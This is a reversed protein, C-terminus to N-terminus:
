KFLPLLVECAREYDEPECYLYQVDATQHYQELLLSEKQIPVLHPRGLVQKKLLLTSRSEDKESLLSMYRSSQLFLFDIQHEQLCAKTAEKIEDTHQHDFQLLRKAPKRFVIRSAWKQTRAQFLASHIRPDQAELFNDLDGTISFDLEGELLSQQLYHDFPLLTKHFYVQLFMHMRALLFNEFTYLANHNLVLVIGAETQVCSLSRILHDRDFIGYNVGTYHSDRHLYDMRDADIEGSIIHRLMPHINKSNNQRLGCRTIFSDSPKIKKEILACVDQAEDKSIVPPSEQSLAYIIAVSFDEHTAQQERDITQYWDWPLELAKKLPLTAESSHSFPPHGIDHTLAAIRVLKRFYHLDELSFLDLLWTQDVALIQDFIQGALHMVGLSHAFRSHTAGTYVYNAFGVQAIHRLRQFFPHDIIRREQEDFVITGHLPCRSEYTSFANSM